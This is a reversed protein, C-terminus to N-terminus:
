MGHVNVIVSEQNNFTGGRIALSSGSPFMVLTFPV